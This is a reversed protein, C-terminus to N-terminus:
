TVVMAEEKFDEESMAGERLMKVAVKRDRWTGQLVRGFEGSGLEEGLVLEAPEM